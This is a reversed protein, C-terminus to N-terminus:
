KYEWITKTMKSKNKSPRLRKTQQQSYNSECSHSLESTRDASCKQVKEVFIEIITPRTLNLEQAPPGLFELRNKNRDKSIGSLLQITTNSGYKGCPNMKSSLSRLIYGLFSIKAMKNVRFNQTNWINQTSTNWQSQNHSSKNQDCYQHFGVEFAERIKDNSPKGLEQRHLFKTPSDKQSVATDSDHNTYIIKTIATGSCWYGDTLHWSIICM